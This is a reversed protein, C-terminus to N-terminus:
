NKLKKACARQQLMTHREGRISLSGCGTRFGTTSHEFLKASAGNLVIARLPRESPALYRSDSVRLVM